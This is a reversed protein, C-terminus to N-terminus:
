GRGGEGALADLRRAKEKRDVALAAFAVFPSGCALALAVGLARVHVMAQRRAPRLSLAKSFTM